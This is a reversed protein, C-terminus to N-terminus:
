GERRALHRAPQDIAEQGVQHRFRESTRQRAGCVADPETFVKGCGLCCFRRKRLILYVPKDWLRRDRKTQASTSHVKATMQGCRPCMAVQRRYEVEVMIERDTEEEGVV